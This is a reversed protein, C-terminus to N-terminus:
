SSSPMLIELMLGFGFLAHRGSFCYERKRSSSNRCLEHMGARRRASIRNCSRRMYGMCAHPSRKVPLKVPDITGQGKTSENVRWPHRKREGEGFRETEQRSRQEQGESRQTGRRASSVRRADTAARVPTKAPSTPYPGILGKKRRKRDRQQATASAGTSYCENRIHPRIGRSIVKIDVNPGM